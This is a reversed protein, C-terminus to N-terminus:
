DEVFVKLKDLFHIYEEQEKVRIVNQMVEAFNSDIGHEELYLMIGDQLDDELESFLPGNYLNDKINPDFIKDSDNISFNEM